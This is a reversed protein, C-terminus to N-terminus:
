REDEFVVHGQTLETGDYAGLHVGEIVDRLRGRESESCEVLLCEADGVRDLASTFGAKSLPLRVVVPDVGNPIAFAITHTRSDHMRAETRSQEAGWSRMLLPVAIWLVLILVVLVLAAAVM